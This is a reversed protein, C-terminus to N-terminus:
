TIKEETDVTGVRHGGVAARNPDLYAGILAAQRLHYVLGRSLVLIEPLLFANQSPARRYIRLLFALRAARARAKEGSSRALARLQQKM